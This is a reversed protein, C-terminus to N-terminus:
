SCFSTQFQAASSVPRRRFAVGVADNRLAALNENGALDAPVRLRLELAVIEDSLDLLRQFIDDVDERSRAALRAM